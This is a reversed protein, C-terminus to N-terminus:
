IACHIFYNKEKSIISFNKDLNEELQHSNISANIKFPSEGHWLSCM